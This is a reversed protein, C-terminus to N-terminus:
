RKLLTLVLHRPATEPHLLIKKEEKLKQEFGGLTVGFFNAILSKTLKKPNKELMILCEHDLKTLRSDAKELKLGSRIKSSSTLYKEYQIQLYNTLEYLYSYMGNLYLHPPVSKKTYKMEKPKSLVQEIIIDKAMQREKYSVSFLFRNIIKGFHVILKKVYPSDSEWFDPYTKICLQLIGTLIEEDNNEFAKKIDPLTLRHLFFRFPSPMYSRYMGRQIQKRVAKLIDDYTVKKYFDKEPYPAEFSRLIDFGEKTWPHITLLQRRHVSIDIKYPKGPTPKELKM